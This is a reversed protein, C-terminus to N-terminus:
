FYIQVQTRLMVGQFEGLNVSSSSFSAHSFDDRATDLIGDPPPLDEDLTEIDDISGDLGPLKETMTIMDEPIDVYLVDLSWKLNHGNFFYNIGAGAEHATGTAPGEKNWVASGRGVVQLKDTVMYGGEVYAGHSYLAEGDNAGAANVDESKFDLWRGFYEANVNFGLYKYVMGVAFQYLDYEVFDPDVGGTGNNSDTVGSVVITLGPKDIRKWDGGSLAYKGMNGMVDAGLHAVFAPIQDFEDDDISKNTSDIGNTVAVEYFLANFIEGDGNNLEKRGEVWVGIQRDTKFFENALSRDVLLQQASSQKQQMGFFPKFQGIGFYAQYGKNKNKYRYQLFADTLGLSGADSHGNWGLRFFTAPNLLSGEVRIRAREVEFWSRDSDDRNDRNVDRAQYTYRGQVRGGFEIKSKGDATQIYPRKGIGVTVGENLRQELDAVRKKLRAM